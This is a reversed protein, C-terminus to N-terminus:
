AEKKPERKILRIIIISVEFMLYTPVAMAVQSIPDPPTMVAGVVLIGVLVFRRNKSLGDASIIDLMGLLILILPTEFILGFSFILLMVVSIYDSITIIAEASQLGLNILFTMAMPLIIKFCFIVGSFFLCVSALTFPFVYKKEHDYLAPEVFRWFHFLIFPSGVIFAALLSVKIQAIFPEMPSTFHLIKEPDPIAQRLPEQLLELIKTSYVMAACFAIIVFILSKVIRDRLEGLHDMLGMVKEAKSNEEGSSEAM